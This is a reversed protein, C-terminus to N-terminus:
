AADEYERLKREARQRRKKAKEYSVGVERAYEALPKRYVRTGVLLLYDFETIRGAEMHRRLRNIEANLDYALDVAAHGIDEVGGAIAAIAGDTM